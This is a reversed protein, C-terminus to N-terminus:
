ALLPSGYDKVVRRLIPNTFTGTSSPSAFTVSQNDAERRIVFGESLDTTTFTEQAALVVAERIVEDPYDAGHEYGIRTVGFGISSRRPLGTVFGGRGIDLYSLQGATLAVGDVSAYRIARVDPWALRFRGPRSSRRELSYRPVFARHCANELRQEAATRIHSLQADTSTAFVLKMEALSCLFGGVIEARTVINAASGLTAVWTATLIDLDATQISTLPYTFGGVGDPTAATLAAVVFTGDTRTVGVTATDPSPDTLTSGAYYSASLTQPTAQLLRDM